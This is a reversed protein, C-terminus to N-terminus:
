LNRAAERLRKIDEKTEVGQNEKLTIVFPNFQEPKFTKGKPSHINATQALLSSTHNWALEQKREWARRMITFENYTLSWFLDPTMGM